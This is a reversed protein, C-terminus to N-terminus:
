TDKIMQITLSLGAASDITGAIPATKYFTGGSAMRVRGTVPQSATYSYTSSINGSTDTTGSIVVFTSTITGTPNSGPASQMTYTYTNADTVTITFTGNNQWHSAGQIHVKDGTVLGHSTHTVTATTGSNTITVPAQYPKGGVGSTVISWVRAGSIPNGTDIDQVHVSFTVPNIVLNVTAGETKYSMNGTCNVLNITVTGTTRKIHFTSDNQGNSANFGTFEIGRLTMSTPSSTGFEIAHHANTGKSFKMNNLKGDPDTAVNWILASTNTAVRPTLVSTGSLNSGPATIALCNRFTSNLIDTGAQLSFTDMGTFSCSSINVDANDTVTLKGPSQNGLSTFSIATWDVRSSANVIAIENFGQSVKPTKQIFISQNSDRFDVANTTTGLQIKGQLYFAGNILQCLGWANTADTSAMGSWTAFGNTADGFEAYLDRGYAIYDIGLSAGAVASLQVCGGGFAQWVGSPTGQTRNRFAFGDADNGTLTPDIPVRKWGGLSYTDVGELYFAYYASLTNGVIVQLGGNARTDLAKPGIHYIWFWIAEGSPLTIASANVFGAGSTGTANTLKSTCFSGQIFFDNQQAITTGATMNTPEAWAPTTVQECDHITTLDTTYVPAAM